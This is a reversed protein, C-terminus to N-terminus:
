SSAEGRKDPIDREISELRTLVNMMVNIALAAVIAVIETDTFGSARIQDIDADAIHGRYRIVQDAFTIAASARIDLGAREVNRTGVWALAAAGASTATAHDIHELTAINLSNSLAKRMAAYSDLVSEGQAVADRSSTPTDKGTRTRKARARSSKLPDGRVSTILQRM